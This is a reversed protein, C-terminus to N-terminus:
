TFLLVTTDSLITKFLKWGVQEAFTGGKSTRWHTEKKMSLYNIFIPSFM